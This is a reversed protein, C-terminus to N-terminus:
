PKPETFLSGPLKEFEMGETSTILPDTSTTLQYWANNFLNGFNFASVCPFLGSLFETTTLGGSWDTQFSACNQAHPQGADKRGWRTIYSILNIPDIMPGDVTITVKRTSPDDTCFVPPPPEPTYAVMVWFADAEIARGGAGKGFGVELQNAWELTWLTGTGDKERINQYYAFDSGIPNGIEKFSDSGFVLYHIVAGGGKPSQMRGAGKVANIRDSSGIDDTFDPVDVTGWTRGFLDYRAVFGDYPSDEDTNEWVGVGLISGEGGCAVPDPGTCDTQAAIVRNDGLFCETGSAGSYAYFDDIHWYGGVGTLFTLRYYATDASITGGVSMVATESNIESNGDMYLDFKGNSTVHQWRVEIFTWYFGLVATSTGITSNNADRAVITGGSGSELAWLLNGSDDHAEFLRTDPVMDTRAAFGVLRDDGANNSGGAVIAIDYQDFGGSADIRIGYDGTRAPTAFVGMLTASTAIAEEVGGTEFGIFNNLTAGPCGVEGPAGGSVVGGSEDRCVNDIKVSRTYPTDGLNIQESGSALTWGCASSVPYGLAFGESEALFTNDQVSGAISMTGGNIDIKVFRNANTATVYAYNEDPSLQLAHIGDLTTRDADSTYGDITPAQGPDSIDFRVLRDRARSTVYSYNGDSSLKVTRPDRLIDYDPDVDTVIKKNKVSFTEGPNTNSIDVRVFASPNSDGDTGAFCDNPDSGDRSAVYAYNEDPSLEVSEIDSLDCDSPTYAHVAPAIQPNSIDVRVVRRADRAAIFLYQGGAALTMGEPGKLYQGDGDSTYNKIIPPQEPNSIDVRVIKESGRAGVYVYNGSPSMILTEPHELIIHDQVYNVIPPDKAPDSIDIRVVADFDRAAVYAYKGDRSIVVERPDNLESQWGTSNVMSMDSLRVRTLIGKDENPSPPTSSSWVVVYAYNSQDVGTGGTVPHYNLGSAFLCNAYSSDCVEGWNCNAIDRVIEQGEAALEYARAQQSAVETTKPGTQLALAIILAVMAVIGIAILVEILIQGKIKSNLIM